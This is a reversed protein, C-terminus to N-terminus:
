KSTFAESRFSRLKAPATQRAWHSHWRLLTRPKWQMIKRWSAPVKSYLELSTDLDSFSNCIIVTIVSPQKIRQVAVRDCDSCSHRKRIWEKGNKERERKVPTSPYLGLFFNFKRMFSRARLHAEVGKLCFM